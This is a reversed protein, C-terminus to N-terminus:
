DELTFGPRIEFDTPPVRSPDLHPRVPEAGIAIRGSHRGIAPGRMVGFGNDGCAVALRDHLFGILPRRDPTAGVAGAWSNVIRAHEGAAVLTPVHEALGDHFDPDGNQDYTDPDHEWLRTGDGALMARPGDPVIYIDTALDWVMPFTHGAEMELSALQVRYPRLPLDFGATLVLRRTWAGAAVLARAATITEDAGGLVVHADEAHLRTVRFNTRLELGRARAGDVTVQCYQTPNVHWDNPLWLALIDSPTVALDPFERSLDDHTRLAAPIGREQLVKARAELLHHRGPDALTVMGLRQLMTADRSQESAAEYLKRSEQVWAQDEPHWLLDTVIGGAKASAESGVGLRNELLLVSAGQEVAAAAASVGWVGGGVVVLDYM